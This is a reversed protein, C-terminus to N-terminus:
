NVMGKLELLAILLPRSKRVELWFPVTFFVLGFVLMGLPLLALLTFPALMLAILGLPTLLGAFTLWIAGIVLAFPRMRHELQLLSGMQGAAPRLFGMIQPQMDNRYDLVRRLVFCNGDVSGRFPERPNTLLESWSLRVDPALANQLRHLVEAPALPSYFVETLSPYLRM